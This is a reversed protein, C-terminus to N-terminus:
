GRGRMVSEPGGVPRGSVPGSSPRGLGPGLEVSLVVWGLSPAPIAVSPQM